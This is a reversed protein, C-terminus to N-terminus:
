CCYFRHNVGDTGALVNGLDGVLGKKVDGHKVNDPNYTLVQVTAVMVHIVMNMYSFVTNVPELGQIKGVILFPITRCKTQFLVKPASDRINQVHAPIVTENAEPYDTHYRRLKQSKTCSVNQIYLENLRM